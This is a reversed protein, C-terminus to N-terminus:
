KDLKSLEAIRLTSMNAVTGTCSEKSSLWKCPKCLTDFPGM